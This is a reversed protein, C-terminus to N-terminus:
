ITYGGRKYKRYNKEQQQNRPWLTSIETKKFKSQSTKHALMHDIRSLKGHTYSFLINEAAKLHFTRYIDILDM